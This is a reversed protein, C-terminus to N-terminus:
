HTHDAPTQRPPANDTSLTHNTYQLHRYETHTTQLHRYETHTTQLHRVHHHLRVVRSQGNVLEDLVGVLREANVVLSEIVDAEASELQGSRGVAVEVMEDRCGDGADGRAEAERALHSSRKVVESDHQQHRAQAITITTATTTATTTTTTTTTTTSAQCASSSFLFKMKIM